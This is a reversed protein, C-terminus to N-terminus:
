FSKNLYLKVCEKAVDSNAGLILVNKESNM